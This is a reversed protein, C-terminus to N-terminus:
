ISLHEFCSTLASHEVQTWPTVPELSVPPVPNRGNALAKIRQKSSRLGLFRGAMFSFNNVTVYIMLVFKTKAVM